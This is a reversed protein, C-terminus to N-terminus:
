YSYPSVMIYQGVIIMISGVAIIVASKSQKSQEAVGNADTMLHPLALICGGYCGIIFGLIILIEGM